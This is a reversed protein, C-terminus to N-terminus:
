RTPYVAKEVAEERLWAATDPDLDLVFILKEATTKSPCRTGQCLRVIYSNDLGTITELQRFTFGSRIQAEMLLAALEPPLTRRQRSDMVYRQGYTGVASM